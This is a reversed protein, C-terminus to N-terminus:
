RALRMRRLLDQFRPDSRLGDFVPHVKLTFLGINHEDYGKELWAFASENDKLGAYIVAISIPSVYTRRSRELLESLIKRARDPEGTVAYAHALAASMAVSEGGLSVAKQMAALAEAHMGKLLFARGMAQHLLAFNPDLELTKRYQAIAQDPQRAYYYVLGLDRNIIVSLPDLEHACKAEALAEEMRGMATLYFAYWQRVTAYRPNRKISRKYSKEAEKWKWEATLISALSAHGEALGGDIELAKLAAAKARPLAEQPSFAAFATGALLYYSDALGAHALAFNPDKEIAQKFFDIGTKLDEQTRKNWYYRGKLYLHYAETDETYRKTLRKRDAGSLRLRLRETIEKAIQEQVAFLDARRRNFKESWLQWGNAVDVLEATILLMEGQQSVRGVLVAHVNLERGATQSDINQGKFRFVTSRAMVRLKPLQALSDILSETIGDSLYETGPDAAVNEFPLVALSHIAGPSRRKRPAGHRVAVGSQIAQLAAFAESAYQYRGAPEKALCRQIVATLSASIHAPLPAPPDRLIATSLAFSSEGRFPRAGTAMEYLVVGLAWLDSQQQAPEGRLVEPALYALTGAIARGEDVNLDSSTEEESDKLPLKRALGFDLVKVLSEPTIVVNSSKLDRHIVGRKHAHALADAIQVAYRVATEVPLGQGPITESLSKGAVYEMVIFALGRAEGVEHVTCIHPHNLASATQAEGLLRKRAASDTVLEAPLVKLAVDRGLREDHARYVVGMGGEGVKEVIRYHSLIQGIVPANRDM